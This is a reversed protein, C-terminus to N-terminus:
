LGFIFLGAQTRQELPYRPSYQQCLPLFELCFWSAKPDKKFYVSCKTSINSMQMKIINGLVKLFAQGKNGGM